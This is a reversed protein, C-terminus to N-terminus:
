RGISDVLDKNEEDEIKARVGIEDLESILAEMKSDGVYWELDSSDNIKVINSPM